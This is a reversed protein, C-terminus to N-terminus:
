PAPQLDEGLVQSMHYCLRADVEAMTCNVGLKKLSTVGKNEIGCPIIREFHSLDPNVNLALGHFTVWKRVKVGMAAIKDDGIWVGIDDTLEGNLGFDALTAVIVHQLNKVYARLDKEHKNLDIIPYAVRQGPGHYTALGGRDTAIVPIDGAQLVDTNEGRRGLTITPAHEVLLLKQSGGNLVDAVCQEQYAVVDQYSQEPSIHEVIITM